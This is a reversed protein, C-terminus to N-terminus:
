GGRRMRELGERYKLCPDEREHRSTFWLADHAGPRELYAEPREEGPRVEAFALSFQGLGPALSALDRPVGMARDAHGAGAILVAGEAGGRIARLLALAMSRNRARWADYLGGLRERPVVRCHSGYLEEITLSRHDGEPPGLALEEALAPPLAGLGRRAVGRTLSAPLDAALIPLGAGHGIEVLPAYLSWPPWGRREWGVIGPVKSLDAGPEALLRSLAPADESTFMEFALAPRRGLRLLARLLRAQLLHHEPNDHREGLYVVRARSLRALLAEEGLFAGEAPSWIRGALPHGGEPAPAVSPAPLFLFFAALAVSASLGGRAWARLRVGRRFGGM